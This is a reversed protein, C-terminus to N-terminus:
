ISTTHAMHIKHHPQVENITIDQELEYLAKGQM